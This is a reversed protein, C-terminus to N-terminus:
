GRAKASRQYDALLGSWAGIADRRLTHQQLAAAVRDGRYTKIWDAALDPDAGTAKAVVRFQAQVGTAMANITETAQEPQQGMAESVRAFLAPPVPKGSGVALMYAIQDSTSVSNVFLQHAAEIEPVPHANARATSEAEAQAAQAAAQTREREATGDIKHLTEATPNYANGQRDTSLWGLRRATNVDTRLGQFEVTDTDRMESPSVTTGNRQLTGLVSDLGNGYDSMRVTTTAPGESVPTTSGDPGVSMRFSAGVNAVRVGPQTSIVNDKIVERNLAQGDSPASTRDASFQIATYEGM